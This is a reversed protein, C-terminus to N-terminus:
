PLNYRTKIRAIVLEMAELEEGTIAIEGAVYRDIRDILERLLILDAQRSDPSLPLPTTEKLYRSLDDSVAYYDTFGVADAAALLVTVTLADGRSVPRPEYYYCVASDGISYPLYNFNRGALFNIKWPAENLRKWNAIHLLDPGEAVGASISGMLSLRDNGSVWWRDDDKGTILTESDVPRKDTVLPSSQGQGEGLCTDVLFRLGLNAEQPSRNELTISIKIGNILSSGATKIFSFVETAKLFASEFVLAPEGGADELRFRFGASEGLRWTKDNMILGVFSTRPDQDVFLPDFQDRSLDTLYYLSFRGTDEHIVLRIRGNTFDAAGLGAPLFILLSCLICAPLFLLKKV